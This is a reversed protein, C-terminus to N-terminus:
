LYYAVSAYGVVSNKDGTVEASSTYQLLRSKVSDLRSLYEIVVCAPIVGCMSIGKDRVTKFLAQADLSLAKKLAEQDLRAAEEESIFHSMDSSALVLVKDLSLEEVTEVLSHALKRCLDFDSIGLCIPVINMDKNLNQLFPLQVELSHESQHALNDLQYLDSKNHLTEIFERNIRTNGLPTEWSKHDALSIPAGMGTHNPGIIITTKPATVMSGYLQGATRGSFMYGAHPVIGGVLDLQLEATASMYQNLERDLRDPASPYFRGAVAPIRINKVM